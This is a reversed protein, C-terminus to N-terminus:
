PSHTPWPKGGSNVRADRVLRVAAADRVHRAAADRLVASRTSGTAMADLERVLASPMRVIVTVDQMM